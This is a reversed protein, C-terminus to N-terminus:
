WLEELPDSIDGDDTLYNEYVIELRREAEEVSSFYERGSTRYGSVWIDGNGDIGVDVSRGTLNSYYDSLGIAMENAEDFDENAL